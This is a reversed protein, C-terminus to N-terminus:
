SISPKSYPEGTFVVAVNAISFITAPLKSKSFSMFSSAGFSKM